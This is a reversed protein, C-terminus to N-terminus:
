AEEVLSLLESAEDLWDLLESDLELRRLELECADELESAEDLEM